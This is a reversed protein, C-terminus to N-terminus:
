PMLPELKQISEFCDGIEKSNVTHKLKQKCHAKTNNHSILHGIHHIVYLVCTHELQLSTYM